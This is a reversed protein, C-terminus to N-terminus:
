DILTQTLKVTSGNIQNALDCSENWPDTEHLVLVRDYDRQSFNYLYNCTAEGYVDDFTLGSRIENGILLPTRTTAQFSVSHFGSNMLSEAWKYAPFQFEGTGLILTKDQPSLKFRTSIIESDIRLLKSIGTRGFSRSLIPPHYPSSRTNQSPFNFNKNASFLLDGELLSVFSVPLGVKQQFDIQAEDKMFNTLCLIVLESLKPLLRKLENVLGLATKGTTHEDDVLILRETNHLLKQHSDNKPLHLWHDPAHSHHEKFSLRDFEELIHRTTHIYLSRDQHEPHSLLLQEFYAHGLGTATEAMGIVTTSRDSRKTNTVLRQVCNQFLQPSVPVHKGLVKSVISFGRLKNPRSGFGIISDVPIDSRAINVRLLGTELQMEITQLILEL